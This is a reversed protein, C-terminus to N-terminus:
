RWPRNGTRKRKCYIFQWRSSERKKGWYCCLSQPNWVTSSRHSEQWSVRALPENKTGPLFHGKVVGGVPLIGETPSDGPTNIDKETSPIPRFGSTVHMVEADPGSLVEPSDENTDPSPYPSPSRSGWPTQSPSLNGEQVNLDVGRVGLLDTWKNLQQLSFLNCVNPSDVLVNLNCSYRQTIMSSFPRCIHRKINATVDYKFEGNNNPYDYSFETLRTLKDDKSHSLLALLFVIWQLLRNIQFIEETSLM